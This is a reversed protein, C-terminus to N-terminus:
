GVFQQGDPFLAMTGCGRPTGQVQQGREKGILRGFLQGGGGDALALVEEEFQAFVEEAGPEAGGRVARCAVFGDLQGEMGGRQSVARWVVFAGIGQLISRNMAGSVHHPKSEGMGTIQEAQFRFGVDCGGRPHQEIGADKRRFPVTLGDGRPLQRLLDNGRDGGVHGFVVGPGVMLDGEVTRCAAM